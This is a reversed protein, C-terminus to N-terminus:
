ILVSDDTINWSAEERNQVYLIRSAVADIDNNIVDDINYVPLFINDLKNKLLSSNLFYMKNPAFCPSSCSSLWRYLKLMRFNLLHKFTMRELLYCVWHNSSRKPLGIIRKLAFHYSVALSRILNKCGADDWWLNAGYLDLCLSDFLMLKVNLEVAHFKRLFMGVKRNFSTQLRRIDEHNKLNYSIFTGLYKYSPVLKIKIGNMCFNM